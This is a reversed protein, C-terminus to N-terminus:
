VSGSSDLLMSRRLTARRRSSRCRMRGSRPRSRPSARPPAKRGPCRAIVPDTAPPEFAEVYARVCERGDLGVADAFATVYARRFIGGPLRDFNECEIALLARTSIKTLASVDGITLGRSLRAQRLRCGLAIQPLEM